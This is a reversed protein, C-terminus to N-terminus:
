LHRASPMFVEDNESRRNGRRGAAKGSVTRAEPAYTRTGTQRRGPSDAGARCRAVESGRPTDSHEADAGLWASKKLMRLIISRPQPPLSRVESHRFWFWARYSSINVAM